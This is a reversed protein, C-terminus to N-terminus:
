LSIVQLYKNGTESGELMIILKNDYIATTILYLLEVDEMSYQIVSENTPTVVTIEDIRMDGSIIFPINIIHTGDDGIGLYTLYMKDNMECVELSAYGLIENFNFTNKIATMESSNDTLSNYVEVLRSGDFKYIIFNFFGDIPVTDYVGIYLTNSREDFCQGFSKYQMGLFSTSDVNNDNVTFKGNEYVIRQVFVVGHIDDLVLLDNYVNMDRIHQDDFDNSVFINDDGFFMFHDVIDGGAGRIYLRGFADSMRDHFKSNDFNKYLGYNNGYIDVAWKDEFGFPTIGHSYWGDIDYINRFDPPFEDPKEWVNDQVGFWPDTKDGVRNLGLHSVGTAEATTQYPCMEQYKGNSSLVGKGKGSSQKVDIWNLYSNHLIPSDQYVKSYSYGNSYVMPNPFNEKLHDHDFRATNHYKNEGLATSLGLKSPIIYGGSNYKSYINDVLQINAITPFYRNSMNAWPYKASCYPELSSDEGDGSIIFHEEGMFASGLKGKFHDINEGGNYDIYGSLPLSGSVPPNILDNDAYLKNFGSEVVWNLCDVECEKFYDYNADMNFYSTAKLEPSKDLYENDDYLEELEISTQTITSLFEEKTDDTVLAHYEMLKRYADRCIGVNSNLYSYDDIVCKTEDRKISVSRAIDKLTKAFFPIAIHVERDNDYDLREIYALAENDSTVINLTLLFNRYEDVSLEDPSKGDFTADYWENVYKLYADYTTDDHSLNNGSVCWEKYSKISENM